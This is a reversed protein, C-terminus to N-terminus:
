WDGRISDCCITPLVEVRIDGSSGEPSHDVVQLSKFLSLRTIDSENDLEVVYVDLNIRGRFVKM